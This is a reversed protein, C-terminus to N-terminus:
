SSWVSLRPCFHWHSLLAKQYLPNALANYLCLLLGLGISAAICLLFAGPAIVPTQQTDFVGQFFSELM